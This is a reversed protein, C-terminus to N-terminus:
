ESILSPLSEVPSQAHFITRLRAENSEPADQTRSLQVRSRKRAGRPEGRGLEDNQLDDGRAGPSLRFVDGGLCAHTLRGCGREDVLQFRATQHLARSAFLVPPEYPHGRGLFSPPNQLGRGVWQLMYEGLLEASQGVPF